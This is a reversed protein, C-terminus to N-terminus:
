LLIVSSAILNNSNLVDLVLNHYGTRFPTSGKLIDMVVSTLPNINEGEENLEPIGDFRIETPINVKKHWYHETVMEMNKKCTELDESIAINVAIKNKGVEKVNLWLYLEKNEQTTVKIM